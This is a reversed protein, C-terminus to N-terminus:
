RLALVVKGTVRRDALLALAENVRELPLEEGIGIRLRGDALAALAGQLGERRQESTLMLGGYGLIRIGNRYVHRLDLSADPGASTGFLVLRGYPRMAALAAATFGGGLPDFVATPRLEAVAATLTGADAVVAEAAGMARIADAKEAQGTQGWVVAGLSSALSVVPLGVGGAAGLVLVRDEPGVDAMGVVHWATLGAIGMAAAAAPDVGPPLEFIASDPVVAAEAWVGDRRAGLGEGCVLVARGDLWGSGEGGLTRPLPGDPAVAGEAVYRDVPNVGAFHLEVLREGPGAEALEVERVELPRGHEILRAASAM